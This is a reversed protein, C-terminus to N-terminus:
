PADDPDPSTAHTTRSLPPRGVMVAAQLALEDAPDALQPTGSHRNWAPDRQIPRSEPSM